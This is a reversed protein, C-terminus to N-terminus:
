ALIHQRVLPLMMRWKKYSVLTNVWRNLDNSICRVLPLVGALKYKWIRYKIYMNILMYLVTAEETGLEKGMLYDGKNVNVNNGWFSSYVEQICRNVTNCDWFIHPRDEDAAAIGEKEALTLERGLEERMQIETRLKCFTCKRDVDGFHAIVTNGHIMGQNWKFTFQRFDTDVEKICWLSMSCAILSNNIEMGMKEWLSKIPRIKEFTFERYLRSGRGSMLNRIKNSGKKIPALWETINKGRGRMDWVPKFKNRAFKVGARIRVYELNTIEIGLINQIEEKDRIGNELCMVGVPIDWFQEQILEYRAQSFINMGGMMEGMRNRIGPNSFFGASYFNGDNEYLKGRFEHWANAIGRACPHRNAAILDKNIYEINNQRATNLVRSGTIDVGEGERKWRNVWACKMATDLEGIRLLGTGGQEIKNYIRDKAIQLKGIAYREIMSEIAKGANVDLPIIGLYFSVQSILFTKAVLVRGTITLNYQSWFNILGRIKTKCKEWNSNINRGKYDINVGLLRCEKQIKIGEVTDNGEWERGTIMIHTKEVNIYLGSLKGFEGLIHLICRLAEISMRFVVTLDDAFAENVGCVQEGRIDTGKRGIIKGGGGMEIKILLIELCIIFVYPSSRDGQPTGRKIDFTKSYMNGMDISAKRDNLLTMVM